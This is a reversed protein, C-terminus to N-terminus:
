VERFGNKHKLWKKKQKELFVVLVKSKELTPPAENVELKGNEYIGQVTTLM